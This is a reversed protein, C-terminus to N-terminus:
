QNNGKALHKEYEIQWKINKLENVVVDYNMFPKKILGDMIGTNIERNWEASIILFKPINGLEKYKKIVELNSPKSNQMLDAIVIEPKLNDIMSIEEEVSYCNGLVEVVEYQELNKRIIDSVIKNDDAIIVKIKEM